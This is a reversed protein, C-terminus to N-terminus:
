WRPHRSSMRLAGRRGPRRSRRARGRARPRRRISNTRRSPAAAAWALLAAPAGLVAHQEQRAQLSRPPPDAPVAHGLVPPGHPDGVVAAAPLEPGALLDAGTGTSRWRRASRPRSGSGASDVGCGALLRSSDIRANRARTPAPVPSSPRPAATHRARWCRPSTGTPTSRRPTTPRCGAPTSRRATCATPGSARAPPPAHDAGRPPAGHAGGAAGHDLRPQAGHRLLAGGDGVVGRGDPPPRRAAERFGRRLTPHLRAPDRPRPGAPRWRRDRVHHRVVQGREHVPSGHAGGAHPRPRAPPASPRASRRRRVHELREADQPARERLHRRPLPGGRM